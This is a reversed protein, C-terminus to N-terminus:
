QGVRGWLARGSPVKERPSRSFCGEQKMARAERDEKWHRDSHSEECVSKILGSRNVFGDHNGM